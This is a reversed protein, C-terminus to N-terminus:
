PKDCGLRLDKQPIGAVLRLSEVNEKLLRALSKPLLAAGAVDAM